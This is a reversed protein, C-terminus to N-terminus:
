TREKLILNNCDDKNPSLWVALKFLPLSKYELIKNLISEFNEKLVEELKTLHSISFDQLIAVKGICSIPLILFDMYEKLKIPNVSIYEEELMVIYEHKSLNIKSRFVLHKQGSEALIIAFPIEPPNLVIQRLLHIHAKTYAQKKDQEIVWSYQRIRQGTRLEGDPMLIETKEQFSSVCGGCVFKSGPRYVIDRNTFKPKVYEKTSYTEDCDAGCFFCREKGHKYLKNDFFISPTIM